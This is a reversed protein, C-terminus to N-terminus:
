APIWGRAKLCKEWQGYQYRTTIGKRVKPCPYDQEVRNIGITKGGNILRYSRRENTAPDRDETTFVFDPSGGGMLRAGLPGYEGSKAREESCELIKWWQTVKKPTSHLTDTWRVCLWGSTWDLFYGLEYNM